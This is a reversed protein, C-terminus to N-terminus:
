RPWEANGIRKTWAGQFRSRFVLVGVVIVAALIASAEFIGSGGDPAVSLWREVFDM